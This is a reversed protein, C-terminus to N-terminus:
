RQQAFKGTKGKRIVEVTPEFVSVIKGEARTDGHFIRTKTQRMVQRVLPLMEDLVQRQGELALQEAAATCRKVGAGMEQSLRKTQGVVRGTVELLRGYTRKM